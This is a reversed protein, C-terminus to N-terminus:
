AAKKDKKLSLNSKLEGTKKRAEELYKDAVTEGSQVLENYLGKRDEKIQSRINGMADVYKSVAGIYAYTVDLLPNHKKDAKATKKSGAKATAKKASSAATKRAPKKATAKAATKPKAAPKAKVEAKVEETKVEETAVQDTTSM